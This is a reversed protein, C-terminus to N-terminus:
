SISLVKNGSMRLDPNSSSWSASAARSDPLPHGHVDRLRVSLQVMVDPAAAVPKPLIDIRAIAPSTEAPPPKPKRKCGDCGLMLSLLALGWTNRSVTGGISLAVHVMAGEPPLLGSRSVVM